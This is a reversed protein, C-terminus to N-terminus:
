GIALWKHAQAFIDAEDNRSVGLFPRAPITIRYAGIAVETGVSTKNERKAFRRGLSGDAFRRRFITGARASMDITGGFQHIAAYPVESGIIAGEDDIRRFISGRLRGQERLIMIQSRGRSLRARITAPKLPAWPTGDPATETDFRDFTSAQLLDGAAEYFPRPRSMRDLLAALNRRAEEDNVEIEISFGAM